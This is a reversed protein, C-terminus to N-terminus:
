LFLFLTNIGKFIKLFLLIDSLNILSNLSFLFSDTFVLLVLMKMNSLLENHNFHLQKNEELYRPYLLLM